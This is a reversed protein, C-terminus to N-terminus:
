LNDMGQRLQEVEKQSEHLKRRFATALDQTCNCDSCASGGAKYCLLYQCETSCFSGCAGCNGGEGKSKACGACVAKNCGERECYFSCGFCRKKNCGICMRMCSDCYTYPNSCGGECVTIKNCGGCYCAECKACWHHTDCNRCHMRECGDCHLLEFEDDNVCGDRRCTSNMCQFCTYNQLGWDFWNGGLENDNSADFWNGGAETTVIMDCQSCSHGSASLYQGYRDLFHTMERTREQRFKKPIELLKLCRRGMIGDLIPIVDSESLQPKPDLIPSEYKGVLTLDVHELAASRIVDLGSGTINVCGALKLIKLNNPADICRLLARMHDDLLKAALSKGIDGFDLVRWPSAASIIAKSKTNSTSNNDSSHRMLCIAFLAQSPKALNSAVHVLLLDPLDNICLGNNSATRRRKNVTSM